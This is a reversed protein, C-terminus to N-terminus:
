GNKRINGGSFLEGHKYLMAALVLENISASGTLRNLHQPIHIDREGITFILHSM